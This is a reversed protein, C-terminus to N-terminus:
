MWHSYHAHAGEHTLIGWIIPYRERDKRIDPRMSEPTVDDPLYNANVEIVADQLFTIGPHQEGIPEGKENLILEGDQYAKDDYGADLAFKVILDDRDAIDDVAWTLDHSLRLWEGQPKLSPKRNARYRTM